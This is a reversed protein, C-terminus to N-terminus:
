AEGIPGKHQISSEDDLVGMSSRLVKGFDLGMERCMQRAYNVLISPVVRESFYEKSRVIDCNISFGREDIEMSFEAELNGEESDLKEMKTM